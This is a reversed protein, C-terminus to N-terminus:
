RRRRLDLALWIAGLTIAVDALNFVPWVRFDLFDVVRGFRIRDLLNGAAGGLLLGLSAPASPRLSWALLGALLLCFIVLHLAPALRLGFAAGPNFVLNAHLLKGLLPVPEEPALLRRALSKTGQDLLLVAIATLAWSWRRRL